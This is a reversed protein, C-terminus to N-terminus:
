DRFGREPKLAETLRKRMIEKSSYVPLQLIYHCTLSEPFHQDHSGSLIQIRMRIQGMGTVPVKRRGTLFWLFDKKQEETLEDFVKWFMQITPHKDNVWEYLTNQKLKAWDYVDGGVLLGQLEEPRFLKVLQQDCVQFFGQKFEQFVSEVSVNFAYNVYADVFEKKNQNTVLKEPNKPDLDVDTNDWNIMFTIDLDGLNDDEYDLIYQLNRGVAPSFEMMDELTPEADLLKKFLVLPFPLNVISNNYLALGCLIGFLRINAKDGEASRSSFWALTESDNLMFMEKKQAVVNLHHFFDSMYVRTIKTDGDFHVVLPKKLDAPHAAALQIFTEEMHSARSLNLEFPDLQPIWGQDPVFVKKQSTQHEKQTLAVDKDFVIKKSKLDMVFPFDCLILPPNDGIKNKSMTRWLQLDKELFIPNFEVGFTKEPIKKKNAKYMNQLILLITKISRDSGTWSLAIKWVNVHRVMTSHSLSHWWDGIIQLSEPPLKQFAAFIEETLRLSQPNCHQQNAHLLENLVLYVRLGEVGVPKNDLSPLLLLVADEVIAQLDNDNTLKEFVSKALSLDLGPYNPSTRFHMDKSQYLFSRNMISASSFTSHIEQKIVKWLKADCETTWKDVMREIPQQTINTKSNLGDEKPRWTAFSCDAGAFITEIRHGNTTCLPLQVPLPISSQSENERGLQQCDNCGFSYVKMPNTLVLTHYRGCAIKTVKAGLLEAVLRPRLEDRFSNHGLQGYRGSGFTFVAGDKTLVVTHEKGCSIHVVKKMNLCSVPMPTKRDETDGLGLQGCDNRGWGFVCGSASLAFSHEGGVSIQVVPIASLTRIHRPSEGGSNSRGLGLQGRSDQGWTYVQGDKSLAVTHHSGCAIQTVPINSLAELSSATFPTLNLDVCFIRGGDSLLMVVDERCSVAQIKEGCNIFKQKGRRGDGSEQTRIISAEGNDKIFALVNLAASLDRVHFSLNLLQVGDSTPVSSGKKRRFSQRHDEGWSFM